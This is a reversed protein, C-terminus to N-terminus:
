AAFWKVTQKLGDEVAVRPEWGLKQKARSIDAQSDRVDGARADAHEPSIDKDMVGAIIAALRNVSMRNGCGVNYV